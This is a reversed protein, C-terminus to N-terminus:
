QEPFGLARLSETLRKRDQPNKYPLTMHRATPWNALSINPYQGLLDDLIERGKDIQGLREYSAAWHALAIHITPGRRARNEEFAAAADAYRGAHFSAYGLFNLYPGAYRPALLMAYKADDIAAEPQGGFARYLALFAHADANSPEVDVAKRAVEIASEFQADNFLAFGLASYSWAFNRDMELAKQALELAERQNDDRTAPNGFLVALSKVFSIGAYGGAYTPDLEIARQFERAARGLNEPVPPNVLSSGRLFAARAEVNYTPTLELATREVPNMQLELATAVRHSIEDQLAFVDGPMRDYRNEWASKGSMADTLSVSVRLGDESYHVQGSLIHQVGLLRAIDQLTMDDTEAMAAANRSIVFLDSLRSLKTTIDATLGDALIRGYPEGNDTEFPLVAISRQVPVPAESTDVREGRSFALLAGLALVAVLGFVIALGGPRRGARMLDAAAAAFGDPGPTLNSPNGGEAARAIDDLRAKLQIKSSVHLKRYVKTLHTRVTSPAIGLREAIERYSAGGAYAGAIESERFSLEVSDDGDPSRPM